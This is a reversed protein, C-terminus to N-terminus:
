DSNKIAEICMTIGGFAGFAFVAGIIIRIVGGNRIGSRILFFAIVAFVIAATCGLSFDEKLTNETDGTQQNGSQADADNQFSSFDFDGWSEQQQPVATRQRSPATRQQQPAASRQTKKAAKAARERLFDEFTYNTQFTGNPYKKLFADIDADTVRYGTEQEFKCGPRYRRSNRDKFNYCRMILSVTFSYNVDGFVMDGVDQMNFSVNDKGILYLSMARLKKAHPISRFQNYEDGTIVNM